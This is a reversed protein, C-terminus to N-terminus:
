DKLAKAALDNDTAKLVFHSPGSASTTGYCYRLNVGLKQLKLAVKNLNGPKNALDLVIIEEEKVDWGKAKLAKKAKENDRVIIYFIAEGEDGYANIAEINIHEKALVTSIEALMGPEDKVTVVLQVARRTKDM